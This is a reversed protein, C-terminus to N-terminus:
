EEDCNDCLVLCCVDSTDSSEVGCTMCWKECGSKMFTEIEEANKEAHCKGCRINVYPKATASSTVSTAAGGVILAAGVAWGVVPIFLAPTGAMALSAGTIRGGKHTGYLHTSLDRHLRQQSQGHHLRRTAPAKNCKMCTTMRFCAECVQCCNTREDANKWSGKCDVGCSQCIVMCGPLDLESDGCEECSPLPPASETAADVIEIIGTVIGLVGLVGGLAKSTLTGIKGVTALRGAGVALVGGGLSTSIISKSLNLDRNKMAKEALDSHYRYCLFPLHIYYGEKGSAIPRQCQVCQDSALLHAM